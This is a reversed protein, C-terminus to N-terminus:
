PAGPTRVLEWALRIGVGQDGLDTNGVGVLCLRGQVAQRLRDRFTANL